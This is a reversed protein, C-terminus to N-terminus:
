KSGLSAALKIAAVIGKKERLAKVRAKEAAKLNRVHGMYKGQLRRLARTKSSMKRRDVKGARRSRRAPASQGVLRELSSLRERLKKIELQGKIVKQVQNWKVRGQKVLTDLVYGAQEASIKMQTTGKKMVFQENPISM